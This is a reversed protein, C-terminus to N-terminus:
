LPGPRKRGPLRNWLRMWGRRLRSVPRGQVPAPKHRISVPESVGARLAAPGDAAAAGPPRAAPMGESGSRVEVPAGAAELEKSRAYVRMMAERFERASAFRDAPDHSMAREVFADAERPLWPALDTLRNEPRPLEGSLLEYFMVGLSYIDTRLDVSKADSRQEPSSYQLKGLTVGVRTLDQDTETLKALGFDLLKVQGERTVMVNEPSLDRHITVKHATELASCVLALIRVTSGLGIPKGRKKRSRMWARVSKGEIYEMAYYLTGEAKGADYIKIVSPHDIQRVADVERIFRAVAQPHAAYKPLLMKLAVPRETKWDQALYVMGMGGRGLQRKIEYRDAFFTGEDFAPM